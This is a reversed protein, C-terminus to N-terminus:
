RTIRESHHIADAYATHKVNFSRVSNDSVANRSVKADEDQASVLCVPAAFVIAAFLFRKIM